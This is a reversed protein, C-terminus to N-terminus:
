ECRIVSLGEVPIAGKVFVHPVSKYTLVQPAKGARAEAAWAEYSRLTDQPMAPLSRWRDVDLREYDAHSLASAAGLRHMLANWAIRGFLKPSPPPLHYLCTPFARLKEVPIEFYETPQVPLGAARKADHVLQPHVTSTHVAANWLCGLPPIPNNMLHMKRLSTTEYKEAAAAFLEPKLRKLTYLDIIHDGTFQPTRWHWVCRDATAFLCAPSPSRTPLM